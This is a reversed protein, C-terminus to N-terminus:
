AMRLAQNAHSSDVKPGNMTFLTGMPPPWQISHSFSALRTSRGKCDVARLWASWRKWNTSQCSSWFVLQSIKQHENTWYFELCKFIYWQSASFGKWCTTLRNIKTKIKIQCWETNILWAKMDMCSCICKRFIQLNECDGSIIAIHRFCVFM